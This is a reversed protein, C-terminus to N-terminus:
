SLSQALYSVFLEYSNLERPRGVRGFPPSVSGTDRWRSLIRRVTRASISTCAAIDSPKLTLSMMTVLKKQEPSIYRYNSM